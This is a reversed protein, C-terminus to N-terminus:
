LSDCTCATVLVEAYLSVNLRLGETCLFWVLARVSMPHVASAVSFWM